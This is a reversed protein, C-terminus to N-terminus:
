STTPVPEAVVAPTGQPERVMVNGGSVKVEYTAVSAQPPGGVVEGSKLDFRGNHWPCTLVCKADVSGESLSARGHPCRDNVAYVTGNVNFLAVAESGLYVRKGVGARVDDVRAVTIYEDASRKAVPRESRHSAGGLADLADWISMQLCTFVPTDRETAGSSESGRLEMVLDVFEGPDDNEFSVVFEQDDLGFSYATNIRVNPYKRGIRVHDAMMEQRREFPLAYWERKKVFPYVYLYRSDAPHVVTRDEDPEEPFEYESKRTTALYSYTSLLYSGLETSFVATEFRQLTDVEPAAQWFLLDADGRTGMLSYTRLLMQGRFDQLANGFGEKHRTQDATPLRRWTPDLKLFLFRVLQRKERTM